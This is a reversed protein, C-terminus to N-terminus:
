ARKGFQKIYDAVSIADEIVVDGNRDAVIVQNEYIYVDGPRATEAGTLQKTRPDLRLTSKPKKGTAYQIAGALDKGNTKLDYTQFDVWPDGTKEKSLKDKFAATKRAEKGAEARSTRYLDRQIEGTAALKRMAKEEALATKGFAGLADGITGMAKSKPQFGAKLVQGALGMQAEGLSKEKDYYKDIVGQMDLVETDEELGTGANVPPGKLRAEVRPMAEKIEEESFVGSDGGEQTWDAIIAEDETRTRPKNFEKAKKRLKYPVDKQALQALNEAELDIPKYSPFSWADGLGEMYNFQGSPINM